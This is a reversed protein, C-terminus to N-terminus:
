ADARGSHRGTDGEDGGAPTDPGPVGLLGERGGAPAEAGAAAGTPRGEILAELPAILTSRAHSREGEAALALRARDVDDGVWDLVDDVTGDPPNDVDVDAPPIVHVRGDESVEYAGLPAFPDHQDSM